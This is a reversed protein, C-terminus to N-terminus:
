QTERVTVLSTPADFDRDPPAPHAPDAVWRTGDVLYSYRYRGPRLKLRVTWRGDRSRELPTISPNWDNFDGVVSISSASPAEIAFPIGAEGAARVRAFVVLLMAAAGMVAAGAMRQRFRLSRPRPLRRVQALVAADVGPGLDAPRRLEALAAGVIPDLERGHDTL